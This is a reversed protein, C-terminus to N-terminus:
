LYSLPKEVILIDVAVLGQTASLVEERVVFAHPVEDMPLEGLDHGVEKALLSDKELLLDVVLLRTASTRSSWVGMKSNPGGM